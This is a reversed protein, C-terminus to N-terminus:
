KRLHVADPDSLRFEPSRATRYPRTAAKARSAALTIARGDDLADARHPCLPHPHCQPGPNTAKGNM